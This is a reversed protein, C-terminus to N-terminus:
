VAATIRPTLGPPVGSRDTVWWAALQPLLDRHITYGTGSEIHEYDNCDRMIPKLARTIATLVSTLFETVARPVDGAYAARYHQAAALLLAVAGPHWPWCADLSLGLHVGYIDVWTVTDLLMAEAVDPDEVNLWDPQATRREQSRQLLVAVADRTKTLGHDLRQVDATLRDVQGVISKPAYDHSSM